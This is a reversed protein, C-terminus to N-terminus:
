HRLGSLSYPVHESFQSKQCDPSQQGTKLGYIAELNITVSVLFTNTDGQSLRGGM